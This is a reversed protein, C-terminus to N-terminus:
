LKVKFNTASSIKNTLMSQILNRKMTNSSIHQNNKSNNHKINLISVPLHNNHQKTTTTTYNPKQTYSLKKSARNTIQRSIINPKSGSRPKTSNIPM